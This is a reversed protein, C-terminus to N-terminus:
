LLSIFYITSMVMRFPICMLILNVQIFITIFDPIGQNDMFTIRVNNRIKYLPRLLSNYELSLSM